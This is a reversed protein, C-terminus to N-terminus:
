YGLIFYADWRNPDARVDRGYHHRGQEGTTVDWGIRGWTLDPSGQKTITLEAPLVGSRKLAEVRQKFIADIANGTFTTIPQRGLSARAAAVQAAVYRRSGTVELLLHFLANTAQIEAPSLDYGPKLYVPQVELFM